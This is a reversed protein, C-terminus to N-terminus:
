NVLPPKPLPMWAVIENAHRLQNGGTFDQTESNYRMVMMNVDFLMKEEDFVLVWELHKPLQNQPFIWKM